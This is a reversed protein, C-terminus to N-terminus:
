KLGCLAYIKKLEKDTKFALSFFTDGADFQKNLLIAQSKLAEIIKWIMEKKQETTM